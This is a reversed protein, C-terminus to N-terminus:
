KALWILLAIIIAFFLPLSFLTIKSYLAIEGIHKNKDEENLAKKIANELTKSYETKDYIVSLEKLSNLCAEFKILKANLNGVKEEMQEM